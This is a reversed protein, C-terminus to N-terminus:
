PPCRRVSVSDPNTVPATGAWQGTGQNRSPREIVQIDVAVTTCAIQYPAPPRRYCRQVSEPAPMAVVVTSSYM